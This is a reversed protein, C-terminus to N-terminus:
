PQKGAVFIVRDKKINLKNNNKFIYCGIVSVKYREHMKKEYQIYWYEKHFKSKMFDDVFEM